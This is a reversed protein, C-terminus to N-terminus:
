EKVVNGSVSIDQTIDSINSSSRFGSSELEQTENTEAKIEVLMKEGEAQNKSLETELEALRTGTTTMGNAKAWEAFPWGLAVNGFQISFSYM